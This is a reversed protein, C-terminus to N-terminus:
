HGRRRTKHAVGRRKGGKSLTFPRASVSFRFKPKAPIFASANPNFKTRSKPKPMMFASATPNFKTRREGMEKMTSTRLNELTPNNEGRLIVNSSPDVLALIPDATMDPVSTRIMDLVQERMDLPTSVYLDKMHEFATQITLVDGQIQRMIDAINADRAM